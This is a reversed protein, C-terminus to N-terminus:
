NTKPTALLRIINGHLGDNTAIIGNNTGLEYRQRNLDIVFGGAERVMLIGAGVDYLDARNGWFGDYRGAAVYALDLAAAGSQRIGATNRMILNIQESIIEDDIIFFTQPM